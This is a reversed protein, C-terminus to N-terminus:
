VSVPLCWLAAVLTPDMRVPMRFSAFWCPRARCSQVPVWRVKLHVVLKTLLSPSYHIIRGLLRVTFAVEEALEPGLM